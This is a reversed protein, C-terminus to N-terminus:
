KLKKRLALPPINLISAAKKESNEQDLAAQCYKKEITTLIENVGVKKEYLHVAIFSELRPDIQIKNEPPKGFKYRRLRWRITTASIGLIIAANNFNGSNDQLTMLIAAKETTDLMNELSIRNKLSDSLYGDINQFNLTEPLDKAYKMIRQIEEPSARLLTATKAMNGKQEQQVSQIIYKLLSNAIDLPPYGGKILNGVLGYLFNNPVHRPVDGTIGLEELKRFLTRPDVKLKQATLIKDGGFETLTIILVVSEVMQSIQNLTRREALLQKLFEQMDNPQRTVQKWETTATLAELLAAPAHLLGRIIDVIAGLRKPDDEKRLTIADISGAREARKLVGHVDDYKTAEPDRRDLM